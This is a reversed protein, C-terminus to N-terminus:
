LIGIVHCGPMLRLIFKSPMTGAIPLVGSMRSLRAESSVPQV